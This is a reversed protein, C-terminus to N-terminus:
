CSRGPQAGALTMRIEDWAAMLPLQRGHSELIKAHLEEVSLPVLEGTAEVADDVTQLSLVGAMDQGHRLLLAWTDAANIRERAAILM